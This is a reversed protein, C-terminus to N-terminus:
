PKAKAIGALGVKKGHAGIAELIELALALARRGDQLPVV